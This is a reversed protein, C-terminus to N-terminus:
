MVFGKKLHHLNSSILWGRMWPREDGWGLPLEGKPHPSSLGQSRPIEDGCRPVLDKM